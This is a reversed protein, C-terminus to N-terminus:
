PKSNWNCISGWKSRDKVSRQFSTFSFDLSSLFCPQFPLTLYFPLYFAHHSSLESQANPSRSPRVENFSHPCHENVFILHLKQQWKYSCFFGRCNLVVWHTVGYARSHFSQLGCVSSLQSTTFDLDRCVNFTHTAKVKWYMLSKQNIHPIKPFKL